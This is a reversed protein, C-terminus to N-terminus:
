SSIGYPPPYPAPAQPPAYQSQTGTASYNPHITQSVVTSESYNPNSTGQLDTKARNQGLIAGANRRRKYICIGLVLSFVVVGAIIGLVIAIINSTKTKKDSKYKVYGTVFGRHTPGGRLRTAKIYIYSYKEVTFAKISSTDCMKESIPTPNHSTLFVEVYDNNCDPMNGKVDFSTWWRIALFYNSGSYQSVPRIDITCDENSSYNSVSVTKDSLTAYFTKSHCSKTSAEAILILVISLVKLIKMM